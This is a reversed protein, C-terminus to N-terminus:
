NREKIIQWFGNPPFYEEFHLRTGNLSVCLDLVVSVGEGRRQVHITIERFISVWDLPSADIKHLTTLNDSINNIKNIDIIHNYM